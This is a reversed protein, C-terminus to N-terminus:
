FYRNPFPTTKLERKKQRVKVVRNIRESRHPPLSIAYQLICANLAMTRTRMVLPLAKRLYELKARNTDAIHVHKGPFLKINRASSLKIISGGILKISHVASNAAMKRTIRFGYYSEFWDQIVVISPEIDTFIKLIM